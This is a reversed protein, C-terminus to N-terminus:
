IKVGKIFARINIARHINISYDQTNPNWYFQPKIYGINTFKKVCEPCICGSGKEYRGRYILNYYVDLDIAKILELTNDFFADFGSLISGFFFPKRLIKYIGTKYGTAKSLERNIYIHEEETPYDINPFNDECIECVTYFHEIECEECYAENEIIRPFDYSEIINNHCTCCQFEQKKIIEFDKSSINFGSAWKQKKKLVRKSITKM